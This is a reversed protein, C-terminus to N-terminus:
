RKCTSLTFIMNNKVGSYMSYPYFLDGFFNPASLFELLDDFSKRWVNRLFLNNLCIAM